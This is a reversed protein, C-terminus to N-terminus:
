HDKVEEDKLPRVRIFLSSKGDGKGSTHIPNTIPQPNLMTCFVVVSNTLAFREVQVINEQRTVLGM